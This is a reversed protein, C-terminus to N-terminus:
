LALVVTWSLRARSSRRAATRTRSSCSWFVLSLFSLPASGGEM